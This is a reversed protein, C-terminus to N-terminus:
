RAALPSRYEPNYYERKTLLTHALALLKRMVACIIVKKAKGKAELREAFERLQPNHQRAVMAPFYLSSRLEASGIKSIVDKGKVSTGSEYKRPSLGAFCGVKRSSEFKEFKILALLRLASKEGIGIISKLIAYDESLKEDASVLKDLAEELKMRRVHLKGISEEIDEVVAECEVGAELRCKEQHIAEDISDLRHQIERLSQQTVSQPTWLPPQNKKCYDALLYADISDTKSRFKQSKGHHLVAYSNVRSARIGQEFLFYGIANSYNGTPEFCAHINALDVGHLWEILEVFGARSNSIKTRMKTGDPFIVCVDITKKSVDLGLYITEALM